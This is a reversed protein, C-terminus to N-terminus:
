KIWGMRSFAKIGKEMLANLEEENIDEMKKFHFCTEGKLCKWTKPALGKFESEHKYTPFFYFVVSDKRFAISSFYMGPVMEKKSGYAAPTNGIVEFASESNKSNVLPPCHNQLIEKLKEFIAQKTETTIPM